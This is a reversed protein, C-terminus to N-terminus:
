SINHQKEVVDCVYTMTADTIKLLKESLNWDEEFVKLINDKIKRADGPVPNVFNAFGLYLNMLGLYQIDKTTLELKEIRNFFEWEPQNSSM